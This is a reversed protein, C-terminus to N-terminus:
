GKMTAFNWSLEPRNDERDYGLPIPGSQLPFVYIYGSITSDNLSDFVEQIKIRAAEYGFKSGRVRVQFTPYEYKTGPTQDPADGGTEFLAIVNDPTPPMYSKALVWDTVGGVVGDSTLEAGIDDLISM